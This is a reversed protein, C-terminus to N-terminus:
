SRGSLAELKRHLNVVGLASRAAEAVSPDPDSLAPTIAAEALDPTFMALVSLGAPRVGPDADTALRQALAFGEPVDIRGTALLRPLADAAAV